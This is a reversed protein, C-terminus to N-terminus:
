KAISKTRKLLEKKALLISKKIVEFFIKIKKVLGNAVTGKRLNLEIDKALQRAQTLGLIQIKSRLAHILNAAIHNKKQMLAKRTKKLLDPVDKLYLMFVEYEFAIDGESVQHLYSLDFRIPKKSTHTTQTFM